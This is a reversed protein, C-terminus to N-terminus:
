GRKNKKEYMELEGEAMKEVCFPCINNYDEWEITDCTCYDYYEENDGMKYEGPNEKM